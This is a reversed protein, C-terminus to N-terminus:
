PPHGTMKRSEQALFEDLLARYRKWPILGTREWEGWSDEHVAARLAAAKISLGFRHRYARMREALTTPAPMPDYGLFAMIAPMFEVPPDTSNKEWNGITMSSVGIRNAVDRQPLKRESRRLQIHDREGVPVHAHGFD